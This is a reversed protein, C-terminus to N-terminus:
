MEDKDLLYDAELDPLSGGEVKSFSASGGLVSDVFESPPGLQDGLKGALRAARPRKGGGGKIALLAPLAEAGLGFGALFETQKKAGVCGFTMTKDNRFKHALKSMIEGCGSGTAQDFVALVCLPRAANAYCKLPLTEHTFEELSADAKKRPRTPEPFAPLALGGEADEALKKDRLATAFTKAMKLAATGKGIADAGKKHVWARGSAVDCGIFAPLDEAPIGFRKAAKASDKPMVFAFAVTYKRGEKYAMAASSFWSPAETIDDTDASLYLVKPVPEGHLFAHMDLYGVAPALKSPKPAGGESKKAAGDEDGASAWACLLAISTFRLMVKLTIVRVHRARASRRDVDNRLM